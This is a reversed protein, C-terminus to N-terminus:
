SITDTLRWQRMEVDIEFTDTSGSSTMGFRFHGAGYSEDLTFHYIDESGDSDVTVSWIAIEDGDWSSDRRKYLYLNLDDTGGSGDFKFDIAAGTHVTLDIGDTYRETDDVDADSGGYGDTKYLETDTADYLYSEHAM